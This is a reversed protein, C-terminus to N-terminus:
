AVVVGVPESGQASAVQNQNLTVSALVALTIAIILLVSIKRM